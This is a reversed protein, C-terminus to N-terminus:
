NKPNVMDFSLNIEFSNNKEIKKKIAEINENKVHEVIDYKISKKIEDMLYDRKESLLKGIYEYALEESNDYGFSIIQKNLGRDEYLEIITKNELDVVKELFKVTVKYNVEIEHNYEFSYLRKKKTVKLSFNGSAEVPMRNDDKKEEEEIVKDIEEVVKDPTPPKDLDDTNGFLWKFM